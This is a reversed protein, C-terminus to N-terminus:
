KEATYDCAIIYATNKTNETIKIKESIEVGCVALIESGNAILPISGRIWVPIKRDTLYDGLSKTGGGFKRFKDGDRKFRIVAGEPLANLDFKLIKGEGEAKTSIILRQGCFESGKYAGFSIETEPASGETIVIKGEGGYATLGLFEFKKNKQGKALLYLSQLHESTYDKRKFHKVAKLAARKFIVSECLLVEVGFPTIKLLKREEIQNSFYEEDELALRSLKFINGVAGPVARELEPIVNHRIKNRTYDDSLNTEDEVFPIGNEAIYEDIQARTCGVLPHIIKESDSIGTLGAISSGRALNFLVTEANDNMHHATAVFDAGGALATNYCERRWLRASQETKAGDFNWSFKLLPIKRENCWEEVFASDRASSERMKHDCNLASLTIGYERMHTYIFNLLAMSDRGGSVAVCIHSDAYASLDFM